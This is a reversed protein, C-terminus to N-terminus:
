VTFIGPPISKIRQTCSITLINLPSCITTNPDEVGIVGLTTSVNELTQSKVDQPSLAIDDFWFLLLWLPQPHLLYYKSFLKLNFKLPRKDLGRKKFFKFDWFPFKEM